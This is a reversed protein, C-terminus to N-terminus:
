QPRAARRASDTALTVRGIIAGTADAVPLAERGSWLAEELADRLSLDHGFDAAGIAAGPEVFDRM